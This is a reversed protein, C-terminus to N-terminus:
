KVIEIKGSTLNRFTVNSGLTTVNRFVHWGDAETSGVQKWTDNLSTVFAYYENMEVDILASPVFTINYKAILAQAEPQTYNYYVTHDFEIGYNALIKEHVTADYCEKCSPDIIGILTALGKMKGSPIQEYPPPTMRWVLSGDSEVSGGNQKWWAKLGWDDYASIEGTIIIAPIKTLNYKAIYEQGQTTNFDRELEDTFSIGTNLQIADQITFAKGCRVCSSNVLRVIGLKGVYDKKQLDLYLPRVKTLVLTGDPKQDGIKKWIELLQPLKFTEGTVLVTPLKTIGYKAILDGAESMKVTKQEIVELDPQSKIGDIIGTLNVCQRCGQVTILTIGIKAKAAEAISSPTAQPQQSGGHDFFLAYGVIVLGVVILAYLAYQLM